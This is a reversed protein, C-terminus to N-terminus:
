DRLKHPKWSVVALQKRDHAIGDTLGALLKCVRYLELKDLYRGDRRYSYTVSEVAFAGIHLGTSTRRQGEELQDLPLSWTDIIIRPDLRRGSWDPLRFRAHKMNGDEVGRQLEVYTVEGVQPNQRFEFDGISDNHPEDTLGGNGRIVLRDKVEETPKYELLGEFQQNLERHIYEAASKSSITEPNIAM